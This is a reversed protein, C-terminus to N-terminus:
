AQEFGLVGEGGALRRLAEAQVLRQDLGLEGFEVAEAEDVLAAGAFDVCLDKRKEVQVGGVGDEFQEEAGGGTLVAECLRGVALVSM